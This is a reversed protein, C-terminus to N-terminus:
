FLSRSMSDLSKNQIHCQRAILKSHLYKIEDKAILILIVYCIKSSGEQLNGLLMGNPINPADLNTPSCGPHINRNHINVRLTAM